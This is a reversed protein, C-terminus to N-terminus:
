QYVCSESLSRLWKHDLDEILLRQLGVENWVVSWRWRSESYQVSLTGYITQCITDSQTNYIILNITTDHRSLWPSGTVFM